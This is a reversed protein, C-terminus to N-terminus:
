EGYDREEWKAANTQEYLPRATWCRWGYPKVNYDDYEFSNIYFSVGRTGIGNLTAAIVSSKTGPYRSIEVFMDKGISNKVEELTMLRPKQTELLSLADICLEATPYGNITRNDVEATLKLDTLGKIVNELKSM